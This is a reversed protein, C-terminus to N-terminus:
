EETRPTTRAATRASEPSEPSETTPDDPDGMGGRGMVAADDLVDAPAGDAVIAGGSMLVLRNAFRRALALDHTVMVVAEPAGDSALLRTLLDEATGDDLGATPEDLILVRPRMALVSALAVRKQQGFSLAFPSQTLSMEPLGVIAMVETISRQIDAESQGVNRPGFSLEDGITSAFLMSAPNQFIYGVARVIQAVTLEAADRGGVDIAGRSPRLVGIALKCLTSKGAGNPGILAAVDGQRIDLDVGAVQSRQAGPYSFHVDHFSLLPEANAAKRQSAHASPDDLRRDARWARYAPADGQFVIAGESLEVCREPRARLADNVRHEVMIVAIGDDALRRFEDLAERASPPDLSALPEDLLLARPRMALTAAIVARQQEGGSLSHTERELLHEIRMHRAAEIVRTRIDDRSLGLNEPGFAIEGSVRTAVIQKDPDQM